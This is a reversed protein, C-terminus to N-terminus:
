PRPGIDKEYDTFFTRAGVGITGDENLFGIQSYTMRPLNNGNIVIKEGLMTWIFRCGNGRLREQFDDIDAILGNPGDSTGAPDRFVTRENTRFGDMGDWWLREGNFLIRAPVHFYISEPLSADYEWEAVIENTAHIFKVSSGDATDGFGLWNDTETNCATAWPYEGAFVHLWKAGRPMWGNFFNRGELVRCAEAFMAKPVIYGRLHIWIWRYPQSYNEDSTRDSYDPYLTLPIWRQGNHAIPALMSELSPLDDPAMVWKARDMERTADFNIGYPSWWPPQGSAAARKPQSLTPDLKREEQLILPAVSTTRAWSDVKRDVSDHLRSALQYMAIWQYKKGIREAWAPKSRGGGSKSTVYEDYNGCRSNQYEFDKVVRQAIWRGVAPKDMFHFWNDLCNISYHNFDDFLCSRVVLRVGPINDDKGQKVEAEPPDRPQAVSSDRNTAVCPDFQSDLLGLHAALEALCRIHDRIIANQFGVSDNKYVKLLTEAVTKVATPDRVVLSAGYACLLVRERVEDDDAELLREVLAAIMKPKARMLATGARTAGDKVRRDAAATFWLMLVAWREATADDVESLELNAAADILRKVIGDHEYRDNLYACWFSDRKALEISKLLWDLWTADINSDQTAVALLADMTEWPTKGTLSHRIMEETSYSFSAPTRWPLARVTLDVVLPRVSGDSIFNPLEAGSQHEAILVSLASLVGANTEVAAPSGWLKATKSGSSFATAFDGAAAGNVIEGAILFDGLREFAPRVVSESGVAGGPPGDEILLDARILWDIVQIGKAQPKKAEVVLQAQSWSVSSEGSDAIATAIATLSGSVIAAGTSMGHDHAFDDEKTALFAQIVPSLGLWGAPLQKLGKKVLTQCVLKLYLPNSLEPQLVPVLPPELGYHRFFANCAEREMGSFGRHEVGQASAAKPLCAPVFSSRCSVCLKLYPRRAIENAVVTYNDQWYNRPTTENVADICIILPSGSAEGAANLADLLGDRGLTIPLGLYEALRTWPNPQGRFQHGFAICTYKGEKLRKGAVDCIGHTKGSGGIGTLIFVRMCALYGSPSKVWDSLGGFADKAERATDINAAPFSMEYEAQFSRLRKNDVQGKGHAAEFDEVLLREAKGLAALAANISDLVKSFAEGSPGNLLAVGVAVADKCATVADKGEQVANSAWKPVAPDGSVSTVREELKVTAKRCDKLLDDLRSRWEVGADFASFWQSLPTDLSLEPSYRPGATAVASAVHAQFWDDSLTTASFFYHRIGGSRDNDVLDSSLTHAPCLEVTLSRGAAKADAVAKDMWTKLKESESKAPRGRKKSMRGTKGTPDFPFCVIYKTLSPHIRLATELSKDAQVILGDVNFVYKAQWGVITGDALRAICEVGGDGGAGRFREFASDAPRTKSALQCCLEEFANHQSGARPVINAFNIDSM